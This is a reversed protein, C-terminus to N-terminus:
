FNFFCVQNNHEPCEFRDLIVIWRLDYERCLSMLYDTEKRSWDEGTKEPPKLKKKCFHFFFKLFVVIIYLFHIKNKSTYLLM